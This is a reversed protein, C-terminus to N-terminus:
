GKESIGEKASLNKDCTPFKLLTRIVSQNNWWVAQQIVGWRRNEPILNILYPKLPREPSGLIRWAAKWNSMKAAAFLDQIDKHDEEISRTTSSITGM